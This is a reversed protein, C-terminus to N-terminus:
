SSPPTTALRILHMYSVAEEGFLFRSVETFIDARLDFKPRGIPTKYLFEWEERTVSEMPVLICRSSLISYERVGLVVGRIIGQKNPGESAVDFVSLRLNVSGEPSGILYLSNAFNFFYAGVSRLDRKSKPDYRFSLFVPAKDQGLKDLLHCKTTVILDDANLSFHLFDGAFRQTSRKAIEDDIGVNSIFTSAPVSPRVEAESPVVNEHSLLSGLKARLTEPIVVEHQHCQRVISEARSEDPTSTGRAIDGLTQSSIGTWSALHTRPKNSIHKFDRVLERVGEIQEDTIVLKDEAM